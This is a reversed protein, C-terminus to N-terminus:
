KIGFQDLIDATLKSLPRKEQESDAVYAGWILRDIEAQTKQELRFSDLLTDYYSHNYAQIKSLIEKVYDRHQSYFEDLKFLSINENNEPQIIKKRSDTFQLKPLKKHIYNMDVAFHWEDSTTYCMYPNIIKKEKEGKLTNCNSCSPILNYFSLAFWPHKSKPLFHDFPPRVHLGHKYASLTYSQNCYPCTKVGLKRHLWIGQCEGKKHVSQMFRTYALKMDKTFSNFMKSNSAKYPKFKKDIDDFHDPECLIIENLLSRFLNYIPAYIGRTHRTFNKTIWKEVEVYYLRGIQDRRETRIGQTM